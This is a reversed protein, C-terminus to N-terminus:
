RRSCASLHASPAATMAGGEGSGSLVQQLLYDPLRRTLAGYSWHLLVAVATLSSYRLDSSDLRFIFVFMSSSRGSELLDVLSLHAPSM